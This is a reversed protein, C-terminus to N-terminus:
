IADNWTLKLADFDARSLAGERLIRCTENQIAMITSPKGHASPAGKLAADVTSGFVDYAIKFDTIDAQGSKNASTLALYDVALKDRWTAQPCRLSLSLTGDAFRGMLRPDLGLGDKTPLVLSLPGPWVKEALQQATETWQVLATAVSIDSICIAIPKNFDRGKIDYLKNVAAQNRADAGLGYVTETPLLAVGGRKLAANLASIDTELPM